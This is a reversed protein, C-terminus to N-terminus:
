KLMKMLKKLRFVCKNLSASATILNHARCWCDFGGWLSILFSTHRTDYTNNRARTFNKKFGSARTNERGQSCSPGCAIGVLRAVQIGLRAQGGRGRRLWEERGKTTSSTDSHMHCSHAINLLASCGNLIFSNSFKNIHFIQLCHGPRRTGTAWERATMGHERNSTPNRPSTSIGSPYAKANDGSM